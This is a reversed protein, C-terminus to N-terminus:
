ATCCMGLRGSANRYNWFAFQIHSKEELYKSPFNSAVKVYCEIQDDFRPFKTSSLHHKNLAPYTTSIKWKKSLKKFGQFIFQAENDTQLIDSLCASCIMVKTITFYVFKLNWTNMSFPCLAYLLISIVMSATLSCQSSASVWMNSKLYSCSM